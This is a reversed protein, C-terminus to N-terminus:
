VSLKPMFSGLINGYMEARKAWRKEGVAGADVSWIKGKCICLQLLQHVDTARIYFEFDYFLVGNTVRSQYSILDGQRKKALKLGLTEVQGLKLVSDIDSSVPTSSVKINEMPSVLDQWKVDYAGPEGDFKNWGSPPNILWGRADQYQSTHERLPLFFHDLNSFFTGGSFDRVPLTKPKLHACAATTVASRRVVVLEDFFHRPMCLAFNPTQNESREELSLWM